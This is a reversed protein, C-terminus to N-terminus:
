GVDPKSCVVDSQESRNEFSPVKTENRQTQEVRDHPKFFLRPRPLSLLALDEGKRCTVMAKRGIVQLPPLIEMVTVVTVALAWLLGSPLWIRKSAAASLM